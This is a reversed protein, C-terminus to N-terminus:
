EDMKKDSLSDYAEELTPGEFDRFWSPNETILQEINLPSMKFNPPGETEIELARAAQEVGEDRLLGVILTMKREDIMYERPDQTAEYMDWLHELVFFVVGHKSFERSLQTLAMEVEIDDWVLTWDDMMDYLTKKM